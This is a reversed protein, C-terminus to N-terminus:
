SQDAPELQPFPITLGPCGQATDRQSFASNEIHAGLRPVNRTARMGDHPIMM